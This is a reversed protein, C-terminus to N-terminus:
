PILAGLLLALMAYLTGHLGAAVWVLRVSRRIDESRAAERGAENLWVDDVLGTAYRRPGSLALGLAAAM